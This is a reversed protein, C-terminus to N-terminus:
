PRPQVSAVASFQLFLRRMAEHDDHAHSYTEEIMKVSTGCLDALLKIPCGAKLMRTIYSHRFSYCMIKGADFRNERCWKRVAEHGALKIVINTLNNNNYHRGRVTRFIRGQGGRAKVEAAVLENLEPTLYVVRDRRTKKGNKWRYEGPAPNWPFVLAGLDPHYHRCEAHIVEGPRAGTGRLVRLFKALERNATAILLDQLAESLVVEKGRVLKEPKAMGAVPNRTIVGQAKAWNFARALVCGATNQTSQNWPKERGRGKYRGEDAMRALWDSVVIPKLDRVRVHGFDAIAPDLMTRAIHLTAGRGERELCHYYRAIVASVPCDDEARHLDDLHMIRAFRETARKFTPGDPEDKPGAALLHQKGHYKTYYAQRSDYYHISPTRPM